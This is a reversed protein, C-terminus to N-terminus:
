FGGERGGRASAGDKGSGMFTPTAKIFPHSAPLPLTHHSPPHSLHHFPSLSSISPQWLHCTRDEGGMPVGDLFFFFGTGSEERKRKHLDWM